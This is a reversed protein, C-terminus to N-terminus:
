QQKCRMVALTPDDIYHGTWHLSRVHTGDTILPAIKTEPEDFGVITSSFFEFRPYSIPM